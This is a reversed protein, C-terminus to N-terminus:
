FIRHRIYFHLDEPSVTIPKYREDTLLEYFNCQGLRCCLFLRRRGGNSQPNHLVLKSSYGCWCEPNWPLNGRVDAFVLFGKGFGRVGAWNCDPNLCIFYPRGGNNNPNDPSTVRCVSTWGCTHCEPPNHPFVQRTTDRLGDSISQHLIEGSPPSIMAKLAQQLQVGTEIWNDLEASMRFIDKYTARPKQKKEENKHKVHVSGGRIRLQNATPKNATRPVPPKSAINEGRLDILHGPDDYYDDYLWEHTPPERFTVRPNENYLEM